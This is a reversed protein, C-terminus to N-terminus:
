SPAGDYDPTEGLRAVQTVVNRIAELKMREEHVKKRAAQVVENEMYGDDLLDDGPAPPHEDEVKDAEDAAARWRVAQWHFDSGLRELGVTMLVGYVFGTGAMTIERLAQAINKDELAKARVAEMQADFNAPPTYLDSLM